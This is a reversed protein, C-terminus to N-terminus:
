IDSLEDLWEFGSCLDKVQDNSNSNAEATPKACDQTSKPLEM